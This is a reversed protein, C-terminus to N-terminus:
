GGHGPPYSKLVEPHFQFPQDTDMQLVVSKGLNAPKEKPLRGSSRWAGDSFYFYLRRAPDYYIQVSPYYMYRHKARYGHAPAWPPPGGPGGGRYQPEDGILVTTGACGALILIGVSLALILLISLISKSMSLVKFFIQQTTWFLPNTYIKLLQSLRDYSSM